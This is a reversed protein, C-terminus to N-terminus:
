LPDLQRSPLRKTTDPHRIDRVVRRQREIYQLGVLLETPRKHRTIDHITRDSKHDNVHDVIASMDLLDTDKRIMRTATGPSRQHIMDPRPRTISTQQRQRQRGKSRHRPIGGVIRTTPKTLQPRALDRRTKGLHDRGLHREPEIRCRTHAHTPINDSADLERRAPGSAACRTTTTARRRSSARHEIRM